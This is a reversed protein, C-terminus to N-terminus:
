AKQYIGGDSGQSTTQTANDKNDQFLNLSGLPSVRRSGAKGGARTYKGELCGKGWAVVKVHQCNSTIRVKFLFGCVFKEL